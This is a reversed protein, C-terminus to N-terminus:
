RASRGRLWQRRKAWPQAPAARREGRLRSWKDDALARLREAVDIGHIRALNGGLLKARTRDTVEPYGYEDQLRRPMHFGALAEVVPQPHTVFAGTGFIVRNPGAAQLLTGLIHAFREPRRVVFNAVAELNAFVNPHSSLLTATDDLFAWGAHVIEFTLDPFAAAADGVDDVRSMALPTQGLPIAKHVAIHPIGLERAKEFVPYALTPDGLSVSSLHGTASDTIGNSPYVKFGDVPVRAACEAMRDLAAPGALPDVPAYLLVREPYRSKLEAGIEFPSLGRAFFGAIDVAHFTMVDVDSEEFIVEALQEASWPATFESLSLQYGDATSELAQHFFRHLFAGFQAYREPACAPARNDPTVDYVHNVGDIILSDSAM